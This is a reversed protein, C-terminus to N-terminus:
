LFWLNSKGFDPLNDEDFHPYIEAVMEPYITTVPLNQQSVSKWYMRSFQYVQNILEKIVDITLLEPKNSKFSLKIPFHYDKASLKSDEFYRTNNFLLFKNFGVSTYTGSRPMKGESGMDFGLLEKSETKNITIVIVPMEPEGLDDLMDLIPQLETKDSIEKYFHIILRKATKKKEKFTEVANKISGALAETEDDRFCSFNEFVGDTSFCFASGVFRHEFGQPKFAGVGVILEDDITDGANTALRWPIGGMKALLAVYINPIFYYFNSKDIHDKYIVQSTIDKYLLLEKIKYYANHQPHTKDDKKIPTVYIAVYRVNPEPTFNKLQEKVEEFINNNDTFAIQKSADFSYPQNIYLHLPDAEKDEKDYKNVRGKWGKVLAKYLHQKIFDGDAKNYIFFLKLHNQTFSRYPKFKLIGWGPNYHTDTLFQLKNSNYKTKLVREKPITYFGKTQLNFLAQFEKAFIYQTCFNELFGLYIPFRNEKKFEEEIDFTKKLTNSLVPFLTTQDQKLHDPMNDYKYISGNCNVLNYKTTDFDALQAISSHLVKSTGNYAVMIEFSKQVVCNYQVKLTFKNYLKYKSNQESTDEFWVEVDDVYNPFVVADTINKFYNFILHTFYHNAFNIAKAFEVEKTIAGDRPEQFDTYYFQLKAERGEPFQEFLKDWKISTFGKQKEGYFAFTGKNAVPKFPIINLQIQEM